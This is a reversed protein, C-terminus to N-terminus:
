KSLGDRIKKLLKHNENMIAAFGFIAVFFITGASALMLGAIFNGMLIMVLGTLLVLGVIITSLVENLFVFAKSIISNM